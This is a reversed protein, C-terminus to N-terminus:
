NFPLANLNATAAVRADVQETYEKDRDYRQDTRAKTLETRTTFPQAGPRGGGDGTVAPRAKGAGVAQQHKDLLFRAAYEATQPNVVNQTFFTKDAETLNTTAWARLNDWQQKGGALQECAERARRTQETAGRLGAAVVTDVMGRGMGIRALAEYHEDSLAGQTVLTEIVAEQELGAAQLVDEIGADDRALIAAANPTEPLSLGDDDRAPAHAKGKLKQQAQTLAAQTDNYAKLFADTRIQGTEADWFKEPVNEPRKPAEQTQDAGQADGQAPAGQEDTM